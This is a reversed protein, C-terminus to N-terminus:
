NTNILISRMLPLINDQFETKLDEINGNLIELLSLGVEQKLNRNIHSTTIARLDRESTQEEASSTVVIGIVDGNKNVVAAGSAGKQAIINGGFSLLDLNNNGFTYVKELKDVTSAAHLSRKAILEGVLGAPYGSILFSQDTEITETNNAPPIYSIGSLSKSKNIKKTIKLIAYDYEGTGKPNEQNIVEPNNKIWKQSIYVLEAKYADEAPSGTRIKCNIYGESPYNQVLFYQAVHANTLIVGNPSIIIGSGSTSRFSEGESTCLINVLANRTNNNIENFPSHTTLSSLQEEYDSLQQKADELKEKLKTLDVPDKQKKKVAKKDIQRIEEKTNAQEENSRSSGSSTAKKQNNDASSVSTEEQSFTKITTAPDEFTPTKETDSLSLKDNPVKKPTFVSIAVVALVFILLLTVQYFIKKMYIDTYFLFVHIVLNKFFITYVRGRLNKIRKYTSM